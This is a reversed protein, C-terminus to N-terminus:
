LDLLEFRDDGPYDEKEEDSEEPHAMLDESLIEDITEEKEIMNLANQSMQAIVNAIPDEEVLTEEGKQLDIVEQVMHELHEVKEDQKHIEEAKKTRGTWWGVVAAVGAVAAAYGFPILPIVALM